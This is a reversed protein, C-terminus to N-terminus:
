DVLTLIILFRLSSAIFRWVIRLNALLFALERDPNPVIPRAKCFRLTGVHIGEFSLSRPIVQMLVAGFNRVPCLANITVTVYRTKM